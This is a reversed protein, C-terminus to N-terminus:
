RSQPHERRWKDLGQKRKEEDGPQDCPAPIEELTPNNLHPLPPYEGYRLSCDDQYSNRFDDFKSDYLVNHISCSYTGFSDCYQVVANVFHEPSREGKKFQDAVKRPITMRYPYVSGGPITPCASGGIYFQSIGNKGRERFLGHIGPEQYNGTDATICVTIAPLHGTNQFYLVIGERDPDTSDKFEAILGDKRGLVVIPRESIRLAKDSQGLAKNTSDALNKFQDVAAKSQENIHGASQSFSEAADANRKSADAVRPVQFWGGTPARAM